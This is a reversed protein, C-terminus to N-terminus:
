VASRLGHGGPRPTSDISTKGNQVHDINSRQTAVAESDGVEGRSFWFRKRIEPQGLPSASRLLATTVDAADGKSITSADDDDPYTDSNQSKFETLSAM